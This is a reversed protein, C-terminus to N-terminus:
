ENMMTATMRFMTWGFVDLYWMFLAPHCSTAVINVVWTAFQDLFVYRVFVSFDKKSLFFGVVFGLRTCDQLSCSM